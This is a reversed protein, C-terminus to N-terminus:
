RFILGRNAFIAKAMMRSAPWIDAWYPMYDDKLNAARIAPDDLLKDSDIPREILISRGEVIVTERGINPIASAPTEM